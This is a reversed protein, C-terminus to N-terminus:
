VHMRAHYCCSATHHPGRDPRRDQGAMGAVVSPSVRRPRCGGRGDRPVRDFLGNGHNCTAEGGAREWEM